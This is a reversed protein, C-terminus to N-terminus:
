KAKVRYDGIPILFTKSCRRDLIRSGIRGLDYISKMDLNTAFVTPYEEYARYRFDIVAYLMSQIYSSSYEAGLDDFLLVPVNKLVDIYEYLTKESTYKFVNHEFNASNEYLAIPYLANYISSLIHTKGCGFDGSLVIWKDLKDLWEEIYNVVEILKENNENSSWSLDLNQLSICKRIPLTFNDATKKIKMEWEEVYNKDLPKGIGSKIYEQKMKEFVFEYEYILEDPFRFCDIKSLESADLNKIKKWFLWSDLHSPINKSSDVRVKRM